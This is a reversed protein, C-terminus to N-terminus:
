NTDDPFIRKWDDKMNVVLLGRRGTGDLAKNLQCLHPDRAGRKLRGALHRRGRM